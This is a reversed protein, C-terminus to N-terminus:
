PTGVMVSRVLEEQIRFMESAERGVEPHDYGLAHLVGHVALRLLEEALEVGADDAQRVAQDHGIYIDALPREPDEALSFSLVDTSRGRGLYRLNLERIEEDGLLTVSVEGARRGEHRLAARVGRQLLGVPVDGYPGANIHVEVM